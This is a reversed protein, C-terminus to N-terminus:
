VTARIDDRRFQYAGVGLVGFGCFRDRNGFHSLLGLRFRRLDMPAADGVGSTAQGADDFTTRIVNVRLFGVDGRVGWRHGFTVGGGATFGLMGGTELIDYPSPDDEIQANSGFGTFGASVSPRKARAQCESLRQAGLVSSHIVTLAVATCVWVKRPFPM